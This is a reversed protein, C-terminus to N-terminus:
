ITEGDISLLKAGFVVSRGKLKAAPDEPNQQREAFKDRYDVKAFFMAAHADAVKRKTTFHFDEQLLPEGGNSPTLTMQVVLKAGEPVHRKLKQNM